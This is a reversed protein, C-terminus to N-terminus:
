TRLGASRSHRTGSPACKSIHDQWPQLSRMWGVNGQVFEADPAQNAVTGFAEVLRAFAEPEDAEVAVAVGPPLWKYLRHDWDMRVMVLVFQPSVNLNKL